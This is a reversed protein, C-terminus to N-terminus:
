QSPTGTKNDEKKPKGDKTLVRDMDLLTVAFYDKNFLNGYAKRTKEQIQEPLVTQLLYQINAGNPDFIPLESDVLIGLIKIAVPTVELIRLATLDSKEKTTIADLSDIPYEKKTNDDFQIEVVDGGLFTKREVDRLNQIRRFGIFQGILKIKDM